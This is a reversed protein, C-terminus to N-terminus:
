KSIILEKEPSHIATSFNSKKVGLVTRLLIISRALGYTVLLLMGYLIIRGEITMEGTMEFYVCPISFLIFFVTFFVTNWKRYWLANELNKTM